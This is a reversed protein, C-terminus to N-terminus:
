AGGGLRVARLRAAIRGLCDEDGFAGAKTVLPLSVGGLTLGLAVGPELEELLRIGRVGFAALLASATEGGTAALAGVSPLAPTLAEALRRALQPGLSLDPEGHMQLEVLVDQGAALQSQVQQCLAADGDPGALLADPEVPVFHMAGAAILRRVGARSAAALSGVVMLTGNASALPPVPDAQAPDGAEAALAHALGASGIFFTGPSAPLSARAIRRLDDETEADCVAVSAPGSALDMLTDRLLAGSGRIVALPVVAAAVGAEAMVAVLGASAYSHDRRWVEAEELPRGNVMVHGNTTTRGTAPFAPALIGFARGRVQTLVELTAATEAAPQGRLTSDIKKLLIRDPGLLRLLAQRHRDAAAPATLGRSDADYSVVPGTGGGDQGWSVVAGAGRQAFAIACDAAGTLDDALVLWRTAM